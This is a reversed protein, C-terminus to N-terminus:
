KKTAVPLEVYNRHDFKPMISGVSTGTAAEELNTGNMLTSNMVVPEVHQKLGLTTCVPTRKTPVSWAYEPRLVMDGQHTPEYLRVTPQTACTTPACSADTNSCKQAAKDKNFEALANALIAQLQPDMSSDKFTSPSATGGTGSPSPSPPLVVKKGPGKNDGVGPCSDTPKYTNRKAVITPFTENFLQLMAEKDLVSNSVDTEFYTYAPDKLVATFAPINYNLYIFIDKLPLGMKPPLPKGRATKYITALQNLLKRDSLFRELEPQITNSQTKMARSYEDSDVLKQRLICETEMGDNLLRTEQILEKQSPVRQLLEQYAQIVINENSVYNVFPESKPSSSIFYMYYVILLLAVLVIFIIFM